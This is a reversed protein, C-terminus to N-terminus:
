VHSKKAKHNLLYGPIIFGFLMCASLVIHQMDVDLFACVVAGAWFLAAVWYWAKSRYVCATVFQGMGVMVLIVPTILQFIAPAKIQFAITFIVALFVYISVAFGTWVMSGIKDIHTKVLVARTDSREIFYSVVFAPVTVLWILFSQNPNSLTYILVSNTVAAAAIVYGWFIMSYTKGKRVNNQARQIMENILTLSQEHNFNADM